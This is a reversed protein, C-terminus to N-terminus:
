RSFYGLRSGLNLERNKVRVHVDRFQGDPVYMTPTYCLLYYNTSAQAASKFGAIPDIATNFVGGTAQSIRKFANFVDESQEKMSTGFIYQAVKEMFIFHLCIDADAFARSIAEADIPTQRNYVQFLEMLDAQINQDEQYISMMSNLVSPNIEPRFERQYFFFVIKQGALGRLGEAFGIFKQPDVFRLNELKELSTRYRELTNELGLNGLTPDSDPEPELQSQDGALGAANQIAKILRRLDKIINNYESSGAEIDKRVLNRMEKSVQAMPKAGLAQQNLSYVKTPSMMTLSDGPRLVETFINDMVDELKNDYKTMQFVLYFHRTANPQLTFNKKEERRVIQNKEIYYLGQIFQPTGGESLEFDALTLDPPLAGDLARVPVQIVTREQLSFAASSFLFFILFCLIWQSKM